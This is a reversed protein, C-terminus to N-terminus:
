NSLNEVSQKNSRSVRFAILVSLLASIYLLVELLTPTSEYGLIAYLLQGLISQESLLDRSDWIPLTTPLWDAQILLQTAQAVMGGSILTLATLQIKIATEAPVSVITYYCLAGISAAIMLGIFGSTLAPTFVNDAQFLGMYFIIIEAGERITALIVTIIFLKTLTKNRTNNKQKHHLSHKTLALTVIFVLCIFIAYQMSANILEQGTYEFWSSFKRLNMIYAWTGILGGALAAWLWHFKLELRYSISLLLSILVGAELTERLVIIVANLLM